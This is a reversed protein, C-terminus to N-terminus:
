ILSSSFSLSCVTNGEVSWVCNKQGRSIDSGWVAKAEEHTLFDMQQNTPECAAINEPTAYAWMSISTMYRIDPFSSPPQSSVIFLTRDAMYLDCFITGGPAYSLLTTESFLKVQDIPIPEPTQFPYPYPHNQHLLYPTSTQIISIPTSSSPALNQHLLLSRRSPTCPSPALSCSFQMESQSAAFSPWPPINWSTTTRSRLLTQDTNAYEDM